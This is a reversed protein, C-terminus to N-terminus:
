IPGVLKRVLHALYKSHLHIEFRVNVLCELFVPTALSGVSVMKEFDGVLFDFAQHQALTQPVHQLCLLALMKLSHRTIPQTTENSFSFILLCIPTMIVAVALVHVNVANNANSKADAGV